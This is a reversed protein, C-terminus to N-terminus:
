AGEQLFWAVAWPPVELALDVQWDPPQVYILKGTAFPPCAEGAVPTSNAGLNALLCLQSGDGLQWRVLLGTGGLLQFDAADGRIDVLRPMIQQRRIALLKRYFAQWDQHEPHGLVQWDLKSRLFTQPANPDPIQEPQGADTFDAFREFERRRGESVADALDPGLNSFFLFPQRAAFEEGMFLLPPAPALLLVAVAARMAVPSTLTCLREGCARNGVQDHNQLFSIFATPPLDRSTEGRSQGQCWRSPEGQYAFGEALCRGLYWAPREAYDSYYGDAEGTLLLHWAHHIDDNWQARFRPKLGPAAPRLHHAVNNYNELMLHVHRNHGPGLAVAVALEELIDPTSDDFITHVADLRLGDLHYEELWYLANHIFFQRVTRSDPGDFNLAEGWPTHHRASVFGPAYAHLYNGEPGFHNYVVDLFVMLEMQHATQILEKFEAPTGYCSDPAFLFVGDYGWNRQGPFDAVPMLEIATVGLAQLYPLRAQLATFTGEPTFTGTHLEYIVTEEWPRGQWNADNWDWSNADVVQSPGHVDEPQFRSAPDPVRLDQDIRYRYHSGVGAKETLLSFWGHSEATLPLLSEGPEQELCLDVQKAAPAWLRFRVRGDRQVEAGFPM